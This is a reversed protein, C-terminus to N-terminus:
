IWPDFDLELTFWRVKFPMYASSISLNLGLAGMVWLMALYPQSSGYFVYVISVVARRILFTVEWLHRDTEYRRYLFGLRNIVEPKFLSNARRFQSLTFSIGVPIGVVYFVMSAVSIIVLYYHERDEWCSINPDQYLYSGRGVGRDICHFSGFSKICLNNYVVVLFSLLMAIKNDIYGVM